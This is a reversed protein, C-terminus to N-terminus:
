SPTEAFMTRLHSPIPWPERRSVTQYESIVNAAQKVRGCKALAASVVCAAFSQHLGSKSLTFSDSLGNIVALSIEDGAQLAVAVHLSLNYTRRHHIRDDLAESLSMPLLTRAATPDRDCLALRAGIGKVELETFRNTPPITLSRLREYRARAKGIDGIELALNAALPIVRGHAAQLGHNDAIVLADEFSKEADEFLGAVRFTVGANCHARFLEGVDGKQNQEYVLDRAAIVAKKLDGVTTHFVMQAQYKTSVPVDPSDFHSAVAHYVRSLESKNGTFGLLMLAMVGAEARHPPSADAAGLCTLSKELVQDWALSQWEARLDMLEFEDHPSSASNLRRKLSRILVTTDRVLPWASMHYFAIVQGEYMELRQEDTRSFKLGKAYADAAATALGVKMLHDACAKALHWARKNDGALRWHKACEWITSALFHEDVESELIEGIRRHLFRRAPISLYSLAVNSLLEHKSAVLDAGSRTTDSSEMVIMGAAGLTNISALLDHAEHQLVSEIRQLTSNNELLAITQLVQLSKPDLRALRQDLLETLSPPVEHELGTESWYRILETIFYPNGDAVRLCWAAYNPEISNKTHRTLSKILQEGEFTSFSELNITKMGRPLELHWEDPVARGTLAFLIRKDHTWEVMDRLLAASSQDLWHADEIQLLVPSEDAVADLLDFLARQVGFFIWASDSQSMALQRRPELRTLRDLFALTDPACGIAGPLSRLIPALQVFASLPRQHHSQRCQVRLSAFGQLSAFQGLETLVRSKGIGADGLILCGRGRSQKASSLLSNLETMTQGRGILPESPLAMESQFREAIRRRMISSQVKLDPSSGVSQQYEDLLTFASAKAGRMAYCEALALTAEENLPSIALLRRAHREVRNWDGSFRFGAILPLIQGVLKSTVELRIEDLWEAYNPSFDPHYGPLFISKDLNIHDQQSDESFLPDTDVIISNEPISITTRTAQGIPFGLKRLKVLTQRLRHNSTKPKEFPWLLQAITKRPVPHDRNFILYLAAAFVIESTPEITAIDTKIITDGLTTVRITSM